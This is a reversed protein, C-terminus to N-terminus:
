FRGPGGFGPGGFGGRNGGRNGGRTGGGFGGPGEPGRRMNQRMERTGFLNLRYNVRLMVYSNISNYENDTRSMASIARSFNSQQGLIDYFELRVSLPKGKLFSQSVQANWILENTNAAADSYGRRSSMNLSTTFQMGWPAQLTTNFGYNFAWTNLNSNAQMANSNHNYQVRGNLEVELWDNRYSAGLREAITTSKTTMKSVNGDRYQDIYGVRNSYSAETSTNINFYGTTDLATNFTVNGSIDWNGNINEPRSERGGTKPDYKVMNAVSNQTTSFRINSFIFQQHREFFDNYRWNFSQTFSPKLDPNGSTKNLPDSDDTIPLLDSMSPQSTSGRYEFRMNGRDSLKWRFNATPSWNVVSRKTVTDTTLYRYTFESNQPIIQVGINFNYSPRIVRLMIEATHIYNKYQSFRSQNQDYFATYSRGGLAGFVSNWERYDPWVDDMGVRRTADNQQWFNYTSRDNKTFNYQFNYSFQLFTAKFIPESYTMRVNYSYNKSPTDYYYNRYYSSDGTALQYLNVLSKTFSESNGDSYNGGLQLTINRGGGGLKRNIQLTGGLRKSDGYNMGGNTLKNVVLTSDIGLMRSVMASIDNSETVYSYPDASFTASSSRSMGDNTSYSWTPRFSINWLTDPTWEMRMQANWSNSRTYNQNTSNSFSGTTAVFNETSRRSWADGDNHNWRISGDWKLLNTKEYNFNVMGMKSAQLGNRGGGGFRGGGGGGGFGMDNTNNANLMSMIRWEDKMMAGFARGSYRKHTGIGADANAFMGRNMGRKLGFDLVMQESGDDIGTVRSLDSKEDYTKIRDVISTPLNKIATKTDGTMFEKGDVKIKQVTKGNIKITGDESVEAGPLKKVLEEVVSGEPTRYAGANYIITDDKTTVKALNKVVEVEKLLKSDPTITLTGLSVPKGDSVSVSKFLTKYGIYSIRVLYNGDAPATLVFQGEMNTVTNATVTSDTKMLSVTAQIVAEKQEGDIVSGTITRQAKMSLATLLMVATLLLFQKM